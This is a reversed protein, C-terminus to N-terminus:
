PNRVELAAVREELTATSRTQEEADRLQTLAECRTYWSGIGANANPRGYGLSSKVLLMWGDNLWPNLTASIHWGEAKRENIWGWVVAFAVPAADM